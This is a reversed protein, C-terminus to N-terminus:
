RNKRSDIYDQLIIDAAVADVVNKRKKGRVNNESLIRHASVTTLREDWYVVPIETLSQILTGLAQCAESRFGMSGDMNKPLGVVIQEAKKENAIEVIKKALVEQNWETIVCVPSALMELKDCIAIGTRKDGYDVSIIVM